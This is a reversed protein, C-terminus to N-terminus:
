PKGAHIYRDIEEMTLSGDHDVDALEFDRFAANLLEPLTLRGDTKRTLAALTAPAVVGRLDDATLYGKRGTDRFYFSETIWQQFEERDIRGDGNKDYARFREKWDTPTASVAFVPIALLAVTMIAMLIRRATTHSM